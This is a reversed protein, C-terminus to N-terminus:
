RRAPGVPPLYLHVHTGFPEIREVHISGGIGALVVGVDTLQAESTDAPSCLSPLSNTAPALAAAGGSDSVTVRVWRGERPGGTWDISRANVTTTSITLAGRGGMGFRANLVLSFLAWEIANINGAVAPAFPALDLHLTISDGLMRQIVGRMQNVLDNVDVRGTDGSRRAFAILERAIYFGSDVSAELAEFDSVSVPDVTTRSRISDIRRGIAALEQRLDNALQFIALPSIRPYDPKRGNTM